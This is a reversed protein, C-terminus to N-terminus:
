YRGEVSSDCIDWNSKAEKYIPSNQDKVMTMVNRFAALCPRYQEQERYKRGLVMHYQILEAFKRRSLKAYRNCLVHEPYLSLCAEFAEMSREYQGKRFDRFGKVYNEQAQRMEFSSNAINRRGNEASEKLKQLEAADTDTQEQTRLKVEPKLKKNTPYFLWIVMLVFFGYVYFRKNNGQPQSSRRPSSAPHIIQTGVPQATGHAAIPAPSQMQKPRQAPTPEVLRLSVEKRIGPNSNDLEAGANFRLESDGLCIVDGEALLEENTPTGNVTLANHTSLTRIVFGDSSWEVKAHKRSCKPDNLIVIDCESSRGIVIVKHTLLQVAGKMPGNL